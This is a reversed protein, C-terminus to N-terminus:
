RTTSGAVRGDVFVVAYASPEPEYVHRCGDAVNGLNAVNHIVDARQKTSPRPESRKAPAGCAVMAVM